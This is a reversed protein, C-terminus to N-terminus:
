SRENWDLTEKLSKPLNQIYHQFELVLISDSVVAIGIIVSVRAKNGFSQHINDLIGPSEQKCSICLIGQLSCQEDLWSLTILSFFIYVRVHLTNGLIIIKGFM